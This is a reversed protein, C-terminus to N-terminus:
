RSSPGGAPDSAGITPSGGYPWDSFPYPPSSEPAAFGRRAPEPTEPAAGTWDDKYAKALRAFFTGRDNITAGQVPPGSSAGDGVTETSAPSQASASQGPAFLFLLVVAIGCIKTLFECLAM